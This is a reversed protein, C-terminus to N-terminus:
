AEFWARLPIRAISQLAIMMRASPRYRGTLWGSITSQNVPRGTALRLEQALQVQTM